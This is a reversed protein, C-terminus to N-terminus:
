TSLWTPPLPASWSPTLDLDDEIFSAARHMQDRGKDTLSWTIDYKKAPNSQIIGRTNVESEGHRVQTRPHRALYLGTTICGGPAATSSAVRPYSPQNYWAGQVM